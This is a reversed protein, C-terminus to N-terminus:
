RGRQDGALGCRGVEHPTARTFTPDAKRCRGVAMALWSTKWLSPGSIYGGRPSPWLLEDRDKGRLHPGVRGHRVGGRLAKLPLVPLGGLRHGDSTDRQRRAGHTPNHSAATLRSPESAIDVSSSTISPLTWRRAHSDMAKVAQALYRGSKEPDV